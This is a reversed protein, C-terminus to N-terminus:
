NELVREYMKITKKTTKEWSFEKVRKSGGNKLKTILKENGIVKFISKSIEDPDLPDKIYVSADGLVDHLSSNNSAVVPTGCAMAELPPFGFGEYLSPFIFINAGSYLIPLDNYDVYGPMIIRTLLKQCYHSNYHKKVFKILNEKNIPGILVLDHNTDNLITSFALILNKLNKRPNDNGVYMIYDKYIGYKNLIEKKPIRPNFFTTDIGSPIIEINNKELNFHSIIDIKTAKSPVIIFDSNKILIPLIFGFDFKLINSHMDPLVLPSIDHITSIKKIKPCNKFLFPGLNDLNHIIDINKNILRKLMLSGLFIRLNPKNFIYNDFENIEVKKEILGEKLHKAYVAEGTKSSPSILGINM